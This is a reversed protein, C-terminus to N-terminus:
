FTGHVLLGAERDSALPLVNLAAESAADAPEEETSRPWLAYLLTAATLAAGGILLGIGLGRLTQERDSADQIESCEPPLPTTGPACAYSTGLSELLDERDSQEGSAAVLMVIGATLAGASLVAGVVVVPINPGDAAEDQVSDSPAPAPESLPVLGIRVTETSGAELAFEHTLPHHGDLRAAIVHKGKPLFLDERLPAEGVPQGDVQVQAGQPSVVLKVRGVHKMAEALRERLKQEARERRDADLSPPLNELAYSLHKASDAHMGLKLEVNGLNAGIDYSRKLEWAKRYAEYSEQYKGERYLEKGRLFLAEPDTEDFPDSQADAAAASAPDPSGTSPANQAAALTPLSAAAVLLSLSALWCALRTRSISV